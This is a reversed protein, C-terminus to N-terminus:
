WAINFGFTKEEGPPLVMPSRGDEVFSAGNYTPEICIYHRGDATDSPKSWIAFRNLNHNSFKIVQGNVVAEEVGDRYLTGAVDDLSLEEGDVTFTTQDGLDFYPHFGPAIELDTQGQNGVALAASFSTEDLHYTIEASMQDYAQSQSEVSDPGLVLHVEGDSVVQSEWKSDRGFGHQGLGSGEPAPGFNPLCVHCGGRTKDDITTKPFIINRGSRALECIYGGQEDYVFSADGQVIERTTPAESTTEPIKVM